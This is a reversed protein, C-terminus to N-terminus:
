PIRTSRIKQEDALVRFFRENPKILGLESRALEEVAVLGQQLDNIQAAIEQNEQKLLLARHQVKQLEVAVNKYQLYGNHGYYLDYGLFCCVGFLLLAMLRMGWVNFWGRERRVSRHSRGSRSAPAANSLSSARESSLSDQAEDHEGATAEM